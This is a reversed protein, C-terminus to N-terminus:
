QARQNSNERLFDNRGKAGSEGGGCGCGVEYGRVTWEMM